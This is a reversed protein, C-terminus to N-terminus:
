GTKTDTTMWQPRRRDPSRGKHMSAPELTMEILKSSPVPMVTGSAGITWTDLSTLEDVADGIQADRYMQENTLKYATLSEFKTM